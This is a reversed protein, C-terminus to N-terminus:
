RRITTRSTAWGRSAPPDGLESLAEVVAVPERLPHDSDLHARRLKEKDLPLRRLKVEIAGVSRRSPPTNPM